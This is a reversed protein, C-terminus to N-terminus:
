ATPWGIMERLPRKMAAVNAVPGPATMLWREAAMRWPSSPLAAALISTVLRQLRLGPRLM